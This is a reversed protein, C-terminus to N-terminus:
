LSTGNRKKKFLALVKQISLRIKVGFYKIGKVGALLRGPTGSQPQGHAKTNCFGMAAGNCNFAHGPLATGKRHHKWNFVALNFFLM